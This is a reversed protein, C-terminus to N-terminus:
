PSAVSVTRLRASTRRVFVQGVGGASKTGTDCARMDWYRGTELRNGNNVVTGTQGTDGAVGGFANDFKNILQMSRIGLRHVDDLERDIQAKDCQPVGNKLGCGFLRSVEIGMVVAMKGDNIVRRAEFPDTVIRFFGRGPGGYQADIYDQLELIRNRQLRVSDMDNCPNTRYAVVSCLQENDVFLNVYTRLGAKWARELWKWYSAERTLADYAPWQRFTPWGVQDTPPGGGVASELAVNYAGSAPDSNCDPLAYEVGYPHWPRGCRAKGGLSEYAMLHMHADIYGRTESYPTQGKAPTGTSTDQVEPYEPCGEARRFGLPRGGALKAGDRATLTFGTANTGEVAFDAADSPTAAVGGATVFQRDKTYLLYSGLRTAQMRVPGQPAGPGVLDFCGRVLEYRDNEGAAQAGAPVLLPLLAAALATM